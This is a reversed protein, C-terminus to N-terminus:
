KINTRLGTNILKEWAKISEYGVASKAVNSKTADHVTANASGNSLVGMSLVLLIIINKIKHKV